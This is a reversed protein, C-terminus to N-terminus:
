QTLIEKQKQIDHELWWNMVNIDKNLDEKAKELQDGKAPDSEPRYGSKQPTPKQSPTSKVHHRSAAPASRYRKKKKKKPEILACSCIMALVVFIVTIRM